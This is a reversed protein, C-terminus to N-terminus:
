KLSLAVIVGVAGTVTRWVFSAEDADGGGEAFGVVLTTAVAGGASCFVVTMGALCVVGFAFGAAKAGVVRGEGLAMVKGGITGTGTVFGAFTVLLGTTNTGFGFVVVAASGFGLLITAAVGTGELEGRVTETAVYTGDATLVVAVIAFVELLLPM